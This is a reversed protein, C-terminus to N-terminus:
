QPDPYDADLERSLRQREQAKDYDATYHYKYRGREQFAHAWSTAAVSVAVVSIIITWSMEAGNM